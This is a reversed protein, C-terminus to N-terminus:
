IRRLAAFPDGHDHVFSGDECPRWRGAGEWARLKIDAGAQEAYARAARVGAPLDAWAAAWRITERGDLLQRTVLGAPEQHLDEAHEEGARRLSAELQDARPDGEPLTFTFLGLDYGHVHFLEVEVRGGTRYIFEGIQPFLGLTYPHHVLLQCGLPEARVPREDWEPWDEDSPEVPGPLDHRAAFLQVPDNASDEPCNEVETFLANLVAAADAAEGASAFRGVLTYSGSNNSSFSRWIRLKV